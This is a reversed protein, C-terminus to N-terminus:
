IFRSFSFKKQFLYCILSSSKCPHIKGDEQQSILASYEHKRARKDEVVGRFEEVRANTTSILEALEIKKAEKRTKVSFSIVLTILLFLFSFIFKFFWGHSDM